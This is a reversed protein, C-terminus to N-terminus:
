FEASDRHQHEHDDRYIRRRPLREVWHRVARSDCIAILGSVSYSTRAFLTSSQAATTKWKNPGFRRKKSRKRELDGAIRALTKQKNRRQQFERQYSRAGALPPIYHVSPDLGLPLEISHPLKAVASYTWIEGTIRDIPM